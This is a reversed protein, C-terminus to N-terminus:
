RRTVIPLYSEYRVKAFQVEYAGLDIIPADGQGTDPITDIDVFRPNLEIDFLMGVALDNDGADIAPSNEQLLLYGSQDDETGWVGDEGPTPDAVFFPSSDSVHDCSAGSAPCGGQILSYNATLSSSSDIGITSAGEPVPNNWLITNNLVVGTNQSLYLGSGNLANNGSLTNNTFLLTSSDCGWLGGGIDAVNIEFVSNSIILSSRRAGLGGGFSSALLGRRQLRAVNQDFLTRHFEASVDELYVGGAQSAVNYYFITDYAYIHGDLAAIGGGSSTAENVVFISDRIVFMGGHDLFMGGGSRSRNAEFEVETLRAESHSFYAGGGMSGAFNDRFAVQQLTPSANLALLGGGLGDNDDGDAYGDYIRFGDLIATPNTREATVVHYVNDTAIPDGIDGSLRVSYQEWDRAAFTGDGGGPPFGGYVAMNDLLQFTSTRLTGPLYEGEAVWIETPGSRGWHFALQLDTLANEWVYGNRLGAAAQDVHIPIPPSEYAGRDVIRNDVAWGPGNARRPNGMLDTIIYSPVLSNSGSDIAPSGPSLRLDGYFDDEDGWAPEEGQVGAAGPGPSMLFRPDDTLLSDCAVGTPCGDKVIGFDVWSTTATDVTIQDPNNDWLISNTVTAESTGKNYIGGGSESAENAVVSVNRLVPSSSDNCIAGGKGATNGVFLANHITPESEFNDIAGGSAGARNGYFIVNQMEPNGFVNEIAGGYKQAYNRVFVVNRITPSALENLLGGGTGALGSGDAYGSTVQFGDLISTPAVSRALLVHYCNDTKILPDGIEGSLTTLNRWPDRSSMTGDGGGKPFGGYMSVGDQLEFTSTRDIGPTYVGEAVWIQDGSVAGSLATQLNTYADDWSTGNNAGTAAADVYIIASSPGGAASIPWIVWALLALFVGAYVLGCASKYERRM